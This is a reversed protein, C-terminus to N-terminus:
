DADGKLRRLKLGSLWQELESSIWVSRGGEIRSTPFTGARMRSWISAYTLGALACVEHRNLLRPMGFRAAIASPRERERKPALPANMTPRRLWAKQPRYGLSKLAATELRTNINRDDGLDVVLQDLGDACIKATTILEARHLERDLSDRNLLRKRGQRTPSGRKSL